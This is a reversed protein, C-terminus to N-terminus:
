GFLTKIHAKVFRRRNSEFRSRHVCLYLSESVENQLRHIRIAQQKEFAKVAYLPLITFGIGLSVPLLILSIQNSFGVETFQSIQEFQPFNQSLLLQTHHAADPHGVIGLLKLTAWDVDKIHSPTVLVLPESTLFESSLENRQSMMSMIGIDYHHEIVGQEVQENPAFRFDMKLKPYTQQLALLQPYLKLGVSGPTGIKVQGIHADDVKISTELEDFQTLVTKGQQYLRAGAETLSFSKGARQILSCDLQLELKKIHQSVGSQTMYLKEATLTFHEVEVLTCFTKLWVPNIM